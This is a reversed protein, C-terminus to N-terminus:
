DELNFNIQKVISTWSYKQKASNIISSSLPLTIKGDIISQLIVALNNYDGVEFLHGIHGLIEKSPTLNTSVPYCGCSIAELLAIGFSEFKSTQVFVKSKTLSLLLQNRDDINGRFLVKAVHQPNSAFFSRIETQFDLDIPGLFEVQWDKLDVFSLAKLMTSNDKEPAGIRGVLSILNDKQISRGNTETVLQRGFDFGNPIYAVKMKLQKTLFHQIYRTEVSVLDIRNYLFIKFKNFLSRSRALKSEMISDNADLKFYFKLKNFTIVKFFIAIITKVLSQHFFMFVDFRRINFLIFLFINVNENRFFRIIRNYSLGMVEGQLYKLEEEDSYFAVTSRYYGEKQLFFPIMGVDKILHINAGQPFITIFRKM